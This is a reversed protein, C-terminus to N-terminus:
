HCMKGYTKDLCKQKFALVKQWRIIKDNQNRVKTACAYELFANFEDGHTMIEVWTLKITVQHPIDNEQSDEGILPSAQSNFKWTFFVFELYSNIFPIHLIKM